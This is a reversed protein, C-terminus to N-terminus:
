EAPALAQKIKAVDLNEVFLALNWWFPSFGVPGELIERVADEKSWGCVVMRYAACMVSSRESGFWCHVFVPTREPDTVIRLFQIVAEDTPFCPHLGVHAYALGADTVEDRNTGITRLNVVTKIGMLRLAALGKAEPQGGRYLDATVKCLKPVGECAVATAWAKGDAAGNGNGKQANATCGLGAAALLVVLVTAAGDFRGRRPM